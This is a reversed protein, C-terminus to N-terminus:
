EVVVKVTSSETDLVGQQYAMLLISEFLGFNRLSESNEVSLSASVTFEDCGIMQFAKCALGMTLENHDPMTSKGERSDLM